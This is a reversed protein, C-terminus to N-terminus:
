ESVGLARLAFELGAIEGDIPSEITTLDPRGTIFKAVRAKQERLYELRERIVEVPSRGLPEQGEVVLGDISMGANSAVFTHWKPKESM